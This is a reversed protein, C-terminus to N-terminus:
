RLGNVDKPLLDRCELLHVQVQYDGSEVVYDSVEKVLENQAKKMEAREKEAAEKDAEKPPPEDEDAEDTSDSEHRIHLTNKIQHSIRNVKKKFDTFENNSVRKPNHVWQLGLTM